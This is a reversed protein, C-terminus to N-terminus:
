RSPPRRALALGTVGCLGITLAAALSVRPAGFARFLWPSAFFLGFMAGYSLALVARYVQALRVGEFREQLLAIFGVDCLPGGAAAVAAALMRLPQSPALAFLAFGVGTLARGGHLLSTARRDTFNGVALNAALNGVGYAALVSALAKVDRAGRAELLLTMGLPLMLWWAAGVVAASGVAYALTPDGRLSRLTAGLADPAAAHVPTDRSRDRGLSAISLASLAFTLADLTFFHIMPVLSSLAALLTPGLVRAFRLTSEMLANTPGREGDAALETTLARLAPDFVASLGACVAVSAVLLAPLPAGLAAGVPVCLVAAARLGDAGLLVSRLPLRDVLSGAALSCVCASLAHLAALRGAGAGWLRTAIWVTAVRNVEDGLSSLLQGGWLLVIVRRRLPLFIRMPAAPGRM